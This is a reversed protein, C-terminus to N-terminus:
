KSRKPLPLQKQLVHLLKKASSDNKFGYLLLKMEGSQADIEPMYFNHCKWCVTTEFLLKDNRYFRVGYPPVHCLAGNPQFTLSRWADTIEKCKKGAITVHSDVDVFIDLGGFGEYGEHGGIKFREPSSSSNPQGERQKGDIVLSYLEIRDVEPFAETYALASMHSLSSKLDAGEQALSQAVGVVAVISVILLSKAISMVLQKRRSRM